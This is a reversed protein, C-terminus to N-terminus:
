ACLKYLFLLESFYNLKKIRNAQEFISIANFNWLFWYFPRHVEM